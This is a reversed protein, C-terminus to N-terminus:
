LRPLALPNPPAPNAGPLQFPLPAPAPAPAAPLQLPFPMNGNAISSMFGPCEMQIALGAVFGAITPSLGSNGGMQSGLTALQTGPQVLMPCISQGLQTIATSVSGNNGIGANNLTNTMSDGPPDAHAPASWTTAAIFVSLVVLLPRMVMAAGTIVQGCVALSCVASAPRLQPRTLGRRYTASTM